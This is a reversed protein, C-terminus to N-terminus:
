KKYLNLGVNKVYALAEQFEKSYDGTTFYGLEHSYCAYESNKQKSKDYCMLRGDKTGIHVINGYKIIQGNATKIESYILKSDVFHGTIVASNDNKTVVKNVVNAKKENKLNKETANLVNQSINKFTETAFKVNIGM